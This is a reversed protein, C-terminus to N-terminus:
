RLPDVREWESCPNVETFWNLETTGVISSRRRDPVIPVRWCVLVDRKLHEKENVIIKESISVQDVVFADCTIRFLLYEGVCLFMENSTNKKM